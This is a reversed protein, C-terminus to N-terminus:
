PTWEPDYGPHDHYIAVLHRVALRLGAWERQRLCEDGMMLAVDEDRKDYEALIAHRADLDRWIPDGEPTGKVREEAEGLREALFRTM